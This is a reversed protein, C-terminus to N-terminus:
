TVNECQLTSSKDKIMGYKEFYALMTIFFVINEAKSFVNQFIKFVLYSHINGPVNERRPVNKMKTGTRMKDSAKENVIQKIKCWPGGPVYAFDPPLDSQYIGM